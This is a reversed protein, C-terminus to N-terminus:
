VAAFSACLACAAIHARQTNLRAIKLATEIANTGGPGTFQLKYDLGRPSLISTVFREMFQLKATTAMDLSHIIGDSEIYALLAARMRDNSHGYNIAGAGSFFDLYRKGTQDFLCSGKAREFVAPFSRCYSRVESERLAIPGNMDFGEAMM